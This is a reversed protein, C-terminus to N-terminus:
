SDVAPEGVEVLLEIAQTQVLEDDDKLTQIQREINEEREM